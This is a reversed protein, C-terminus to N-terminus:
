IFFKVVTECSFQKQPLVLIQPLVNNTEFTMIVLMFYKTFIHHTASCARVTHIMACLGGRSSHTASIANVIVIVVNKLVIKVSYIVRKIM